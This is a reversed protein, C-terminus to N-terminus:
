IKALFPHPGAVGKLTALNQQCYKEIKKPNYPPPPCSYKSYKQSSDNAM